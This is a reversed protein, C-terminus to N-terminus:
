TFLMPVLTSVTDYTQIKSPSDLAQTIDDCFHFPNDCRSHFSNYLPDDHFDARFCLLNNHDHHQGIQLTYM